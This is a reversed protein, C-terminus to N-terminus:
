HGSKSACINPLEAQGGCEGVRAARGEHITDKIDLRAGREVLMRVVPTTGPGSQKISRRRTVTIAKRNVIRDEGANLLLRLIEVHGLQAALATARHRQLSSAAPLLRRIDDLQGLGYRGLTEVRAADHL